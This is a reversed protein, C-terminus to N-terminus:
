LRCVLNRGTEHARLHTYSVASVGFLGATIIQEALMTDYLCSVCTQKVKDYYYNIFHVGYKALVFKFDHVGNQTLFLKDQNELIEKYEPVLKPEILYVMETTGLQFILMRSTAAVPDLGDRKNEGGTESDLGLVKRKKLWSTSEGLDKSSYIRTINQKPVAEEAIGEDIWEPTGIVHFPVDLHEELQRSIVSSQLTKRTM